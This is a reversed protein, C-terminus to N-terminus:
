KCAFGQGPKSGSYAFIERLAQGLRRLQETDSRDVNWARVGVIYKGCRRAALFDRRPRDGRAPPRGTAGLRHELIATQWGPFFQELAAPQDVVRSAHRLLLSRKLAALKTSASERSPTVEIWSAIGYGVRVSAPNGQKEHVWQRSLTGARAPFTIGTPRHTGQEGEPVARYGKEPVQLGSCLLALLVGAPAIVSM